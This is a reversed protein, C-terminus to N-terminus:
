CRAGLDAQGGYLLVAGGHGELLALDGALLLTHLHGPGDTSLYTALAWQFICFPCNLFSLNKFLYTKVQMYYKYDM